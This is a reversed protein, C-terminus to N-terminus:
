KAKEEALVLKKRRRMVKKDYPSLADPTYLFFRHVELRGLKCINECTEAPCENCGGSFTEYECM